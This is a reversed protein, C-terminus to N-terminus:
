RRRLLDAASSAQKTGTVAPTPSPITQVIPNTDPTPQTEQQIVPPTTLTQQQTTAPVSTETPTKGIGLIFYASAGAVALLLGVAVGIVWKPIGESHHDDTPINPVDTAGSTPAVLTEPQSIPPTYSPAESTPSVLHSLDTPAPEGQMAPTDVQVQAPEPPTMTPEPQAPYPSMAPQGSPPTFTSQDAQPQSWNFNPETTPQTPASDMPPTPQM